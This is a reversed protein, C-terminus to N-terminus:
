EGDGESLKDAWQELVTVCEETYDADLWADAGLELVSYDGGFCVMVLDDTLQFIWMGSEQVADYEEVATEDSYDLPELEAMQAMHEDQAVEIIDLAAAARDMRALEELAIDGPIEPEAPPEPEARHKEVVAAPDSPAAEPEQGGGSCAGLALLAAVAIPTVRHAHM